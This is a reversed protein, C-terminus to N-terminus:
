QKIEYLYSRTESNLAIQTMGNNGSWCVVAETFGAKADNECPSQITLLESGTSLKFIQCGNSNPVLILNQDFNVSVHYGIIKSTRYRLSNSQNDYALIENESTKILTYRDSSWIEHGKLNQGYNGMPLRLTATSSGAMVNWIFLSDGLPFRAIGAALSMHAAFGSPVQSLPVREYVWSQSTVNYLGVYNLINYQDVPEFFSILLYAEADVGAFAKIDKVGGFGCWFSSVQRSYQPTILLGFDESSEMNGAYIADHTKNDADMVKGVAFYKSGVGTFSRGDLTCDPLSRAWVLKQAEMDLVAIGTASASCVLKGNTHINTPYSFAKQAVASATEALFKQAQFDYWALGDQTICVAVADKSAHVPQLYTGNGIAFSSLYPTANTADCPKPEGEPLAEDILVWAADECCSSLLFCLIAIGFIHKQM